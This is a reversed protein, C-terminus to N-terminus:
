RQVLFDTFFVDAVKLDTNNAAFATKLEAKLRDKGDVALLGDASQRGLVTLATDRVAAVAADGAKGAASEDDKTKAGKTGNAVRLTMSIRLYANGGADALNVLMPELTMVHTPLPALPGAKAPAAHQLPLRGSRAMYYVLGGMALTAIVVGLVVAILLPVVPSKAPAPAPAVPPPTGALVTPSAAM